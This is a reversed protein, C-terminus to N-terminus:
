RGLSEPDVQSEFWRQSSFAITAILVTSGIFLAAIVGLVALWGSPRVPQGHSASWREDPTLGYVIAALMGASIALGLLPILLWALRDDQGLDLMRQVGYAGFLALPLHVWALLDRRGHLYFRHLGVAGFIVALWTALTKSRVGHRAASM